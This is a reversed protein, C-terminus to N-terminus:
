ALGDVASAITIFLKTVSYSFFILTSATPSTLAVAATYKQMKMVRVLLISRALRILRVSIVSFCMLSM